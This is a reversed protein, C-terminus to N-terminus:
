ISFVIFKSSMFQFISHWMKKYNYLNHYNIKIEKILFHRQLKRLIIMKSTMTILKIIQDNQAVIGEVCVSNDFLGGGSRKGKHENM